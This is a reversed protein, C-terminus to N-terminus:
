GVLMRSDEPLGLAPAARPECTVKLAKMPMAKTGKILTKAPDARKKYLKSRMSGAEFKKRNRRVVNNNNNNDDVAYLWKSEYIPM